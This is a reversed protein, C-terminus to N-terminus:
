TQALACEPPAHHAPRRVTLIWRTQISVFVTALLCPRASSLGFIISSEGCTANKGLSHNSRAMVRQEATAPGHPLEGQLKPLEGCFQPELHPLVLFSTRNVFHPDYISEVLDNLSWSDRTAKATRMGSGPRGPRGPRGAAANDGEAQPNREHGGHQVVHQAYCRRLISLPRMSGISWKMGVDSCILLLLLAGVAVHVACM